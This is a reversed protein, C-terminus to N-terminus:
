EVMFPKSQVVEAQSTGPSEVSFNLYYQGPRVGSLILNGQRRIIENPQWLEPPYDVTGVPLTVGVGTPSADHRLLQVEVQQPLPLGNRTRQWYLNLHLPDGSNLPTDPSSRHGLKYLDYGVLRLGAIEVDLSQQINYAALPLPTEPSVVEIRALEIFDAPSESNQVPLRLGTQSNYLGGILRYEGPPTGPEIFIGHADAVTQGPQWQTAAIQPAADRQGVVHNGADLLQLFVTLTEDLPAATQWQMAVQLIDGPMISAADVGLGTLQIHEGLQAEFPEIIVDIKPTAYSVLRVNGYWRDTAKFLNTDLWREIVGAPDAQQQAWYVAYVTDASATVQELERVTEDRNLPRHRPLPYVAVPADVPYYYGFVDQQGEANLIIADDPGAVARIFQAIGRYDDRAFAPNTYYASLSILSSGTVEALLLGALIVGLRRRSTAWLLEVTTLAILLALPPVAVGLFKLFAPSYIYATLLVPLLLWLYLLPVAAAFRPRSHAMDLAFFLTPIGLVVALVIVVLGTQQYPWSLGLLLATVITQVIETFPPPFGDSPWTTLQRWATPLWPLYLLLPIIQLAFWKLLPSHRITFPSNRIFHLLMALNVAVLIIPYAYHTYLGATVTVIYLFALFQGKVASRQHSLAPALLVTFTSLFALLMYMRTEQSYYVLLPSLATVFAAILGLWRTFLRRGIAWTCAVVGVGLVASLSRLAAESNGFVMVWIKLLWYYLPPHIDLATRQM